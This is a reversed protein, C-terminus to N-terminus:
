AADREYSVAAAGLVRVWVGFVQDYLARGHVSSIEQTSLFGCRHVRMPCMGTAALSRFPLTTKTKSAYGQGDRPFSRPVLPIYGQYTVQTGPYTAQTQLRPVQTHLRPVYGPYSPIYAPYTAEGPTNFM